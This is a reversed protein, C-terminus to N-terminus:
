VFIDDCISYHHNLLIQFDICIKMGLLPIVAPIVGASIKPSHDICNYQIM